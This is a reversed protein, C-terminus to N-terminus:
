IFDINECFYEAVNEAAKAQKILKQKRRLVESDGRRMRDEHLRCCRALTPYEGPNEKSFKLYKRLEKGELLILTVINTSKENFVFLSGDEYLYHIQISNDNLVKYCKLLQSQVSLSFRDEREICHNSRKNHISYRYNENIEGLIVKM